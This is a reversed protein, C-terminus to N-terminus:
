KMSYDQDEEVWLVFDGTVSDKLVRRVNVRDSNEYWEEAEKRSLGGKQKRGILREKLMEEEARILITGDAWKRLSNWPEEKLLLWNGELLIIDQDVKVADEVM